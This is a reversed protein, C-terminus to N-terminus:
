KIVSSSGAYMSSSVSEALSTVLSKGTQVLEKLTQAENMKELAYLNDYDRQWADENKLLQTIFFILRLKTLPLNGGEFVM